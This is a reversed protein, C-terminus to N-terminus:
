RCQVIQSQGSQASVLVESLARLAADVDDGLSADVGILLQPNTPLGVVTERMLMGKTVGQGSVLQGSGKLGDRETQNIEGIPERRDNLVTFGAQKGIVNIAQSSVGGLWFEVRDGKVDTIM